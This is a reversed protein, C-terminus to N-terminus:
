NTKAYEKIWEVIEKKNIQNRYMRFAYDFDGKSFNGRKFCLADLLRYVSDKDTQEQRLTIQIEKDPIM